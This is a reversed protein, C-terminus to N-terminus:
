PVDAVYELTADLTIAVDGAQEGTGVSTLTIQGQAGLAITRVDGPLSEDVEFLLANTAFGHFRHVPEVAVRRDVEPGTLPVRHEIDDFRHALGADLPDQEDGQRDRTIEEGPDRMEPVLLVARGGEGIWQPAQAGIKAHPPQPQRAPQSGLQFCRANGAGLRARLGTDGAGIRGVLARAAGDVLAALQPRRDLNHLLGDVAEVVLEAGGTSRPTFWEHVLAIRQPLDDKAPPM